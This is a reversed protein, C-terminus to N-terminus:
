GAMSAGAAGDHPPDGSGSSPITFATPRSGAGDEILPPASAQPSAHTCGALPPSGSHALRMTGAERPRASAMPRSITRPTTTTTNAITDSSPRQAHTAELGVQVARHRSSWCQGCRTSVHGRLLRFTSANRLRLQASADVRLGECSRVEAKVRTRSSSSPTFARPTANSTSTRSKEAGGRRGHRPLLSRIWRFTFTKKSASRM